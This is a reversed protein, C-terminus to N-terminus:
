DKSYRHKAKDWNDTNAITLGPWGAGKLRFDTGNVVQEVAKGCKECKQKKLDSHKCMVEFLHKCKKQKCRVDYLPMYIKRKLYWM